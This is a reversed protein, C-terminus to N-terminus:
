RHHHDKGSSLQISDYGFLLLFGSQVAQLQWGYRTFCGGCGAVTEYPDEIFEIDIHHLVNKANSSAIPDHARVHAGLSILTQIVDIAPANRLDDTNPKFALGLIAISRGRLVNLTAQLKEIVVQRQRTNVQRAADLVPM